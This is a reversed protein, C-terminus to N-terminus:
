GLIQGRAIIDERNIRRLLALGDALRAELVEALQSFPLSRFVDRSLIRVPEHLSLPLSASAYLSWPMGIHFGREMVEPVTLDMTLALTRDIEERAWVRRRPWLDVQSSFIYGNKTCFAHMIPDLKLLNDEVAQIRAIIEPSLSM